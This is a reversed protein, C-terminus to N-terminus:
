YFEAETQKIWQFELTMILKRFPSGDSPCSSFKLGGCMVAGHQHVNNWLTRPWLHTYLLIICQELEFSYDTSLCLM